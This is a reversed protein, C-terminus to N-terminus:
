IPHRCCHVESRVIACCAPMVEAALCPFLFVGAVTAAIPTRASRVGIIADATPYLVTLEQGEYTVLSAQELLEEVTLLTAAVCASMETWHAALADLAPCSDSTRGALEAPRAPLHVAIHPIQLLRPRTKASQAEPAVTDQSPRAEGAAADDLAKAEFQQWPVHCHQWQLLGAAAALLMGIAIGTLIQM